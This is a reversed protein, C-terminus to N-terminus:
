TFELSKALQERTFGLGLPRSEGTVVVRDLAILNDGYVGGARRNSMGRYVLHVTLIPKGVLRSSFLSEKMGNM